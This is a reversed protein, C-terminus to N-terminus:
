VQLFPVHTVAQTGPPLQPLEVRRVVKKDKLDVVAFGHLKSLAVYAFSEDHRLAIPRVPVFVELTVRPLGRPHAFAWPTSPMQSLKFRFAAMSKCM